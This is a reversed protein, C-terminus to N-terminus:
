EKRREPQYQRKCDESEVFEEYTDHKDLIRYPCRNFPCNKRYFGGSYDWKKVAHACYHCGRHQIENAYLKRM